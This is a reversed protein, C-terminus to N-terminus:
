LSEIEINQPIDKIIGTRLTRYSPIFAKLKHKSLEINSVLRNAAEMGRLEALIKGRGIKRVELFESYVIISIIQSINLPHLSRTNEADTAQVHVVYPPKDACSYKISNTIKVSEVTIPESNVSHAPSIRMADGGRLGPAHKHNQALDIDFTNIRKEKPSVSLDTPEDCRELSRKRISKSKNSM